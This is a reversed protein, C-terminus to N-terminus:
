TQPKWQSFLIIKELKESLFRYLLTSFTVTDTKFSAKGANAMYKMLRQIETHLELYYYLIHHTRIM